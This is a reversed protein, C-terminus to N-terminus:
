RACSRFNEMFQMVEKIPRREHRLSAKLILLPRKWARGEDRCQTDFQELLADGIRQAERLNRSISGTEMYNPGDHWFGWEDGEISSCRLHVFINQLNSYLSLYQNLLFNLTNGVPPDFLSNLELHAISDMDTKTLFDCPRISLGSMKWGFSFTDKSFDIHAPWRVNYRSELHQIHAPERAAYHKFAEERSERNVWLAVLDTKALNFGPGSHSPRHHPFLWLFSPHGPRDWMWPEIRRGEPFTMIWILIPIEIPLLPFLNFSDFPM